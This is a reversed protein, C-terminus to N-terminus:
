KFSKHKYILKVLSNLNPFNEFIINRFNEKNPEDINSLYNSIIELPIHPKKRSKASNAIREINSNKSGICKRLERIKESESYTKTKEEYTNFANEYENKFVINAFELTHKNIILGELDSELSFFPINHEFLKLNFKNIIEFSDDDSIFSENLKESIITFLEDKLSDGVSIIEDLRKILAGRKIGSSITSKISIKSVVHNNLVNRFAEQFAEGIQYKNFFDSINRLTLEDNESFSKEVFSDKDAIYLWDIAFYKFLKLFKFIQYNGGIAVISIKHYIDPLLKKLFLDFIVKDSEGEVFIVLDSFVIESMEINSVRNILNWENETLELNEINTINITEKQTKSFKESLRIINEANIYNVIVPSHTTIIFQISESKKTYMMIDIIERTLQPHTFAEPEEVVLIINRSNKFEFESLAKMLTIMFSSQIGTGKAEFSTKVGDNLYLSPKGIMIRLIQRRIEKNQLTEFEVNQITSITNNTLNNVLESIREKIVRDLNYKNSNKGTGWIADTVTDYPITIGRTTVLDEIIIDFLRNLIDEREKKGGRYAPIYLFKEIRSIYNILYNEVYEVNLEKLENKLFKIDKELDNYSITYLNESKQILKLNKYFDWNNKNDNSLIKFDKPFYKEFLYRKIILEDYKKKSRTRPKDIITIIKKNTNRRIELRVQIRSFRNIFCSIIYYDYELEKLLKMNTTKKKRLISINNNIIELHEAIKNFQLVVVTRETNHRFDEDTIIPESKPNSLNTFFLNLAKLVNSKGINNKGVILTADSNINIEINKITKYSKIIMKCLKM